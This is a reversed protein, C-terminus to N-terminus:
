GANEPTPPDPDESKDEELGEASGDQDDEEVVEAEVTPPIVAGIAKRAVKVQLQPAIEVMLDDDVIETVRGYIGGATVVEDGVDLNALMSKSDLQRKKQLRILVFYLFGFAVLILLLGPGNM